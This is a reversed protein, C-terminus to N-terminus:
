KVGQLVADAVAKMEATRVIKQAMQVLQADTLSRRMYNALKTTFRVNGDVYGVSNDIRDPSVLCDGSLTLPLGTLACLGQQSDWIADLQDNTLTFEYGRRDAHYKWTSILKVTLHRTGKWNMPKGNRRCDVKIRASAKCGSCIGNWPTVRESSNSRMVTAGCETCDYPKKESMRLRYAENPNYKRVEDRMYKMDVTCAM